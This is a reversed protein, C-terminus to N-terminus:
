RAPYLNEIWGFSCRAIWALQEFELTRPAIIQAIHIQLDRDAQKGADRANRTRTLRRQDVVRKERDGGCGQVASCCQFHCWVVREVAELVQVLDHVNILARNSPRRARVRGGVGAEERGNAFQKSAYRFCARPAVSGPAEGEVHLAPAAFGALAVAHDLYFHM